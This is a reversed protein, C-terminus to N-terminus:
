AGVSSGETRPSHDPQFRRRPGTRGLLLRLEAITGFILCSNAAEPPVPTAVDTEIDYHYFQGDPERCSAPLGAPRRRGGVLRELASLRRKASM